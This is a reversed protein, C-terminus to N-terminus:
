RGKTKILQDRWTEFYEIDYFMKIKIFKFNEHEIFYRELEQLKSLNTAWINFLVKNPHNSAKELDFVHPYHEKKIRSLVKGRNCAKTEGHLIGIFDDSYVPYWKITYDIGGERELNNVRRRITKTSLKLEDAVDSFSKRSDNHLSRIIQYDTKTFTFSKSVNGKRVDPIFLNLDNIGTKDPITEIYKGMESIDKLLGHIYLYHDSTSVMRFTNEDSSLEEKIDELSDSTSQGHILLRLSGNLATSSINAQFGGIIGKDILAKIRSHVANVSLDVEDALKRYVVRSNDFLKLCLRLDIEDM